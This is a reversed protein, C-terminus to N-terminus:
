KFCARELSRSSRLLVIIQNILSIAPFIETRVARVRSPWIMLRAISLLSGKRTSSLPSGCEKRKRRSAESHTSGNHARWEGGFIRACVPPQCTLREKQPPHPQPDCDYNDDRQNTENPIKCAALLEIHTCAETVGFRGASEDSIARAPKRAPRTLM